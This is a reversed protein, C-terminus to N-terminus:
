NLDKYKGERNIIRNAHDMYQRELNRLTQAFNIYGEKELEDAMEKYKAAFEKEPKGSPDVRHVGRANLIAIGFGERMAEADDADLAEAVVKNIWLGDQEDKDSIAHMLMEGIKQLAIELHDSEKCIEKVSKLWETFNEKIFEGNRKTGPITKWHRILSCAMQAINVDKKNFESSVTNSAPRYAAQILQCFFGPDSAMKYELLKPKLRMGIRNLPVLLRWEVQFLYEDRIKPSRQLKDILKIIYHETMQGKISMNADALSLLVKITLKINLSKEDKMAYVCELAEYLRNHKILKDVITELNNKISHIEYPTISVQQWYEDENKLWVKVRDWIHWVQHFPLIMLFLLKDKGTWNTRNLSDVMEM